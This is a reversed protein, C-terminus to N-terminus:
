GAVRDPMKKGTVRRRMREWKVGTLGKGGGRSDMSVMRNPQKSHM